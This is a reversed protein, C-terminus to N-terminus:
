NYLLYSRFSHWLYEWTGDGNGAAVTATIRLRVTRAVGFNAIQVYGTEAGWSKNLYGGGVSNGQYDILEVLFQCVSWQRYATVDTLNMKVPGAQMTRFTTYNTTGNGSQGDSNAPPNPM